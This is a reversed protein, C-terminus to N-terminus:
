IDYGQAEANKQHTVIDNSEWPYAIWVDGTERAAIYHKDDLIYPPLEAKKPKNKNHLVYIFFETNSKELGQDKAQKEADKELEGLAYHLTTRTDDVEDIILVKKNCLDIGSEKYNIWQIRKVQSGVKEAETGTTALDEYLSLIIAFIKKSPEGERKLFTRLMRAPIFGGGGIAIIVDIDLPRIIEAAEKCLQHIHNYSIYIKGEESM